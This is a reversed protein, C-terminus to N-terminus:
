RGKSRTRKASPRRRRPRPAPEDPEEIIRWDDPAPPMLAQIAARDTIESIGTQTLVRLFGGHEERSSDSVHWMAVPLSLGAEVCRSVAAPMFEQDLLIDAYDESDSSLIGLMLAAVDQVAEVSRWAYSRRAVRMAVDDIREMGIKIWENSENWVTWRSVVAAISSWNPPFNRREPPAGDPSQAPTEAWAPTPGSRPHEFVSDPPPMAESWCLEYYTYLPLRPVRGVAQHGVRWQGPPSSVSGACAPLRISRWSLSGLSGDVFAWEQQISSPAPVRLCAANITAFRNGATVFHEALRDRLESGLDRSVSIAGAKLVLANRHVAVGVVTEDLWDVELVGTPLEAYSVAVSARMGKWSYHSISRAALGVYGVENKLLRVRDGDVAVNLRVLSQGGPLEIYPIQARYRGIGGALTGELVLSRSAGSTGASGPATGLYWLVDAIRGLAGERRGAAWDRASLWGPGIRRESPLGPASLTLECPSYSLTDGVYGSMRAAPGEEGWTVDSRLRLTVTTGPPMGKVARLEGFDSLGESEFVWGTDEADGAEASRRTEVRVSTAIMFYSLVGIGFQGTRGTRFGAARSRRELEQIEPRATAGGVLLYREIIRRTMGSGNDSCVLQQGGDPTNELRLDVRRSKALTLELEPDGPNPQRLRLHAIEERVADFANQLLERVAALPNEYLQTGSLLALVRKVDPRFAGDIYVYSGQAPEIDRGVTTHMTWRHPLKRDQAPATDFHTLDDLERCLRLEAEVQEITDIIARHIRASAPRASVIIRDGQLTTSIAADKWWFIRSSEHVERHRLIVEPTREPDFDLVDAVRLLAALYRLHVMDGSSGVLRPNFARDVLEDRGVHHSGCLMVLDALWGHYSGLAFRSLETRMWEASWENHRHRAYATTIESARAVLDAVSGNSERSYGQEDQWHQLDAQEDPQLGDSRGYAFFAFVARIKAQKPMMGIDHLYAALLLLALEYISLRAVLGGREGGAGAAAAGGAAAVMEARGARGAGGVGHTEGAGAAGATGGAGGPVAPMLRCMWEAVRFAHDADHLTFDTEATGGKDLIQEVKPLILLLTARVAEAPADSRRALEKWLGTAQWGMTPM